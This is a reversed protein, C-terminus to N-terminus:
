DVGLPRRLENRAPALRVVDRVPVMLATGDSLYVTVPGAHTVPDNVRVHVYADNGTPTHLSGDLFHPVYTASAGRSSSSSDRDGPM